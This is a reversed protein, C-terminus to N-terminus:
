QFNTRRLGKSNKNELLNTYASLCCETFIKGNMAKWDKKREREVCKLETPYDRRTSLQVLKVVLKRLKNLFSLLSLNEGM